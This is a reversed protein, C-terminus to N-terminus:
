ARHTADLRSNREIEERTKRPKTEKYYHRSILTLPKGSHNYASLGFGAMNAPKIYMTGNREKLNGDRNMLAFHLFPRCLFHM